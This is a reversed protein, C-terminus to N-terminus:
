RDCTLLHNRKIIEHVLAELKLFRAPVKEEEPDINGGNQIEDTKTTDVQLSQAAQSLEAGFSANEIAETVTTDPNKTAEEANVFEGTVASRVRTTMKDEKRKFPNKM